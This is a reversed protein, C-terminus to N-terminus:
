SNNKKLVADLQPAIEKLADAPTQKKLMISQVATACLKDIDGKGLVLLLPHVQTIPLTQKLYGDIMEPSWGPINTPYDTPAPLSGDVEVIFKSFPMDPKHMLSGLFQWRADSNKSDKNGILTWGNVYSLPKVGSKAPLQVVGMDDFIDTKGAGKVVQLPLWPEGEGSSALGNQWADFQTMQGVATSGDDVMSRYWSLADIAEPTTVNIKTPTDGDFMVLQGGFRAIAEAFFFPVANDWWFVYGYRSTKGGDAKTLTKANQRIDDTSKPPKVGAQDYFSKRYLFAGSNNETPYGWVKGQYTMRQVAGPVYNQKVYSAEQAPLEAPIGNKVLESVALGTHFVDPATGAIRAATMKARYEEPNSSVTEVTVHIKDQQGQGSNYSDIVKQAAEGTKGGWHFWIKLETLGSQKTSAQPVASATPAAAATTPAPAATDAPAKVAATPQTVVPAATPSAATTGCASLFLANTAVACSIRVFDRRSLSRVFMAVERRVKPAMTSMTVDTVRSRGTPHENAM